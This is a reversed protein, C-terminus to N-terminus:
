LYSTFVTFILSLSHIKLKVIYKGQTFCNVVCHGDGPRTIFITISSIYQHIVEYAGQIIYQNINHSLNPLATHKTSM